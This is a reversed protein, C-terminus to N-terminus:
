RRELVWYINLFFNSYLNFSYGFHPFIYPLMIVTVGSGISCVYFVLHVFFKTHRGYFVILSGALAPPAHKIIKFNTISIRSSLRLNLLQFEGLVKISFYFNKSIDSSNWRRLM